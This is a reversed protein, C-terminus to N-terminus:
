HSFIPPPPPQQSDPVPEEQFFRKVKASFALTLPLAALLALLVLGTIIGSVRQTSNEYEVYQVPGDPRSIQGVASFLWLISLIGIALVRGWSRRKALGWFAALFAAIFVGYIVTAVSIMLISFGGISLAQFVTLIVVGSFLLAFGLLVIQAIWVSIPRRTKSDM